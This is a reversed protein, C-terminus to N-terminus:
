CRWGSGETGYRGPLPTLPDLVTGAPSGCGGLEAEIKYPSPNEKVMVGEQGEMRADVRNRTMKKLYEEAVLRGLENRNVLIAQELENFVLRFNDPGEFEEFDPIEMDIEITGIAHECGKRRFKGSLTLEM